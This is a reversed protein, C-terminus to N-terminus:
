PKLIDLLRIAGSIFIIFIESKDPIKASEKLCEMM